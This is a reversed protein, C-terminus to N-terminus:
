GGIAVGTLTQNVHISNYQEGYTNFGIVPLSRLLGEMRPIWGRELMELKRHICDCAIMLQLNPFTASFRNLEKEMQDVLDVGEAITLVLGADIASFFSLSDDENRKQISRVHWSDAIKLILPHKSFIDHNLDTTPIGLARAYEQAAPEANIESVIRKDPDAETIVMKQNTPQFHQTMFVTFPLQTEFFTVVAAHSLFKGDFYVKTEKFRLDDGTSGGVISIGELQSYLFAIVKEELVSLGDILLFGFIKTKDIRESFVLKRSLSDAIQQAEALGFRDLPSILYPHLSLYPSSLGAGVIGGSQYGCPSIEGATTGGILLCPFREKLAIALQDSDYEPSCFFLVADVTSDYIKEFLDQVAEKENKLLTSGIKVKLRSDTTM